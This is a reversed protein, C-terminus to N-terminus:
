DKYISERFACCNKLLYEEHLLGKNKAMGFIIWDAKATKLPDWSLMEQSM